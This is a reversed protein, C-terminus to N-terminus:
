RITTDRLGLVNYLPVSEEKGKIKTPPLAETLVLDGVQQLTNDSIIIQNSQALSTLRSALNVSDGIVTYEMTKSSGLNGAVVLGTDIGFGTLIPVRGDVLRAENWRALAERMELAARVARIAADPQSIPAGWVAMVSDGIYKDLTGEHKFVVDVLIEFYENLMAVVDQAEYREAISTYGRIDSFM